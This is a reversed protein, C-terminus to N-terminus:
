VPNVSGMESYVPIPEERRSAEIFLAKGGLYSGTFGIAKVLPHRVISLGVHHAAGQLLSFVGDPMGTVQAANIIVGAILESTVPHGPHSKYVVPCGAALASATDGGAVSFAYPFNSAGFVGTVGIPVQMQRLDTKAPINANPLDIVARLWNGERLMKAFFKLQNTTRDREGLLRAEPLNTEKQTIEILAPGINVIEEAIKELFEARKIYTLQKYIPAAEAAKCCALSVEDDTAEFFSYLEGKEDAVTGDFKESNTGSRSYGIFHRGSILM